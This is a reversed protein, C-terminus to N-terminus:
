AIRCHFEVILTLTSKNLLEEFNDFLEVGVRMLKPGNLAIFIPTLNEVDFLKGSSRM